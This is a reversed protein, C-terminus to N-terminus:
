TRRMSAAIDMSTVLPPEQEDYVFARINRIRAMRSTRLAAWTALLAATMRIANWNNQVAWVGWGSLRVVFMLWLVFYGAWYLRLKLQGPLYTCTFPVTKMTITLLEILCLGALVVVIFVTGALRPEGMSLLLSAAISAAPVCTVFAM